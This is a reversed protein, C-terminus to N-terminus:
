DTSYEICHMNTQMNRLYYGLSLTKCVAKIDTSACMIELRFAKRDYFTLREIGLRKKKKFLAIM